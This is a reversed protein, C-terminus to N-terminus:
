PGYSNLPGFPAAAWNVAAGTMDIDFEADTFLRGSTGGPGSNAFWGKIVAVEASLDRRTASRFAAGPAYTRDGAAANVYVSALTVASNGTGAPTTGGTVVNHEVTHGSGDVEIGHSINAKATWTGVAGSSSGLRMADFWTGSLGNPHPPLRCSLMYNAATGLGLQSPTPYSTSGQDDFGRGDYDAGGAMDCALFAMNSSQQITGYGGSKDLNLGVFACRSGQLYAELKNSHAMTGSAATVEFGLVVSQDQGHFLIPSYEAHACTCLKVKNRNGRAGDAMLTGSSGHGPYNPSFNYGKTGFAREVHCNSVVADDATFGYIAGFGAEASLAPNWVSEVLCNDVTVGSTAQFDIGMAGNQASATTAHGHTRMGRVTCNNGLKIGKARAAYGITGNTLSAPDSPWAYLIANAGDIRYGWGGQALAPLFNILAFRDQKSAVSSRSYSAGGYNPSVAFTGANYSSVPLRYNFNGGGDHLHIDANQVQTSTYGAGQHTVPLVFTTLPTSTAAAAVMWQDECNTHLPHAPSPGTLMAPRLTTAGEHLFAARVDSNVIASLAVVARKINGGSVQATTFHPEDAAQLAGWSGSAILALGSVVVVEAGYRSITINPSASLNVYERYTGARVKIHRAGGAAVAAARASGITLKPAAVSTGANADSGLPSVYYDGATGEDRAALFGFTTTAGGGSGGGSAVARAIRRRLM